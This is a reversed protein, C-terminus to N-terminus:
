KDGLVTVDGYVLCDTKGALTTLKLKYTGSNWDIEETDDPDMGAVVSRPGLVIDSNALTLTLLPERVAGSRPTQQKWPKMIILEAVTYLTAFDVYDLTFGYHELNEHHTRKLDMPDTHTAPDFIFNKVQSILEIEFSTGRWIVLDLQSPTM